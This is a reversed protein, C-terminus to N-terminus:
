ASNGETRDMCAGIHICGKQEEMKDVSNICERTKVDYLLHEDGGWYFFITHFCAIKKLLSVIDM